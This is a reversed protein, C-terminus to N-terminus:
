PSMVPAPVDQIIPDDLKADKWIQLITERDSPLVMLKQEDNVSGLWQGNRAMYHTTASGEVGIRDTVPVARIKKGDLDVEQEDLVDVYRAMVARQESVYSAFMYTGPQKLPLLRPLLHALAQPIYYVPLDQEIPVGKQVKAYNNVSLHYSEAQIVPPDHRDLHKEDGNLGEAAAKRDLVRHLEMDSNGMESTKLPVLGGDDILSDVSWIEHRRDYSVFMKAVRDIRTPGTNVPAAPQAPVIPLPILQGNNDAQAPPPAPSPAVPEQDNVLHVKMTVEVGDNNGEQTAQDREQMYGVDKGDRIIRLFQEAVLAEKLRTVDWTAFVERTRFLRKVQEKKLDARDLLKVTELVRSFTNSALEEDPSENAEQEPAGKPMGPSTLQLMYYNQDDLRFIAERTTARDAGQNYRAEIVAVKVKTDGVEKVGQFLVNASPNTAKLEEVTMELLGGTGNDIIPQSLHVPKNLHVFKARLDWSRQGYIFRVIDGSNVQRILQGGAPPCFEIGSVRSRFPEALPVEGNSVTTTALQTTPTMQGMLPSSFGIAMLFLWRKSM